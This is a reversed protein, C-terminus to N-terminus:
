AVYSVRVSEKIMNSAYTKLEVELRTKQDLNKRNLEEVFTQDLKMIESWPPLHEEPVAVSAREYADYLNLFLNPDKLNGVQGHAFQIAQLAVTPCQQIIYVLRDIM